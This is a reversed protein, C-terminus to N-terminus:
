KAPRVELLDNVLPANLPNGIQWYTGGTPGQGVTFSPLAAYIDTPDFGYSNVDEMSLFERKKAGFSILGAFPQVAVRKVAWGGYSAASAALFAGSRAPLRAPSCISCWRCCQSSTRGSSLSCHNSQIRTCGTSVSSPSSAKQM